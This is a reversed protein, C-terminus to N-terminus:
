SPAKSITIREVQINAQTDRTRLVLYPKKSISDIERVPLIYDFSHQTLKNSFNLLNWGSYGHERTTYAAEVPEVCNNCAASISITIKSGSFRKAYYVPFEFVAGM